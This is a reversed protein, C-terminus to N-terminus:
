VSIIDNENDNAYEYENYIESYKPLNNNLLYSTDNLTVITNTCCRNINQNINQNINKDIKKYVNKHITIMCKCYLYLLFVCFIIQIIYLYIINM